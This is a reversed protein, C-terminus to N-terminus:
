LPLRQRVLECWFSGGWGIAEDNFDYSPHHLNASNGNGISIMAGPVENLMFAFDEGGLSPSMSRNVCDVGAVAEAALAAYDTQQRHNVTVPYHRQYDIVGQGGFAEAISRVTQELRKEVLDRVSDKLTRVTGSMRLSQPVVNFTDGSHITTISIVAADLPAVNRAVISQIAQVMSAAIIIPDIVQHPAAAHGGIGKIEIDIIDVSGKIPGSAIAFEGIPLNPQNHMGYVEDVPWRRFLGDEIMARAGAGGEEAPQFILVVSGDFDRSKALVIAAGLLMVTHGDHGCAHMMGSKQSSWPKGTKEQIPLADMDARLGIMKGYKNTQGSIRAVVGSTGVSEVVEDCGADRLAQAVISSTYPLDYLLEPNQHLNRRFAVLKDMHQSLCCDVPM